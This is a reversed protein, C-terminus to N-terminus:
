NSRFKEKNSKVATPYCRCGWHPKPPIKDVPYIKGDRNMCELCTRDDHQANWRVKTVGADKFAKVTAADSVADAYHAMMQVWYGLGRNFETVKATSANVAEALRDRKREVENRYVYKTVPDYEELFELLWERSPQKKADPNERLYKKIALELYAKFNDSDLAAYLDKCIGLVNLEDFKVAAARSKADEFRRVAKKKLLEIARDALSYESNENM